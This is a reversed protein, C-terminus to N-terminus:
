EKAEELAAVDEFTTRAKKPEGEKGEDAGEVNFMKAKSRGFSFAGGGGGGSAQRMMFIIFGIILVTPVIATILDMWLGGMQQSSYSVDVNTLDVGQDSLVMLVDSNQNLNAYQMTSDKLKVDIQSEGIEISEVKNEEIDKVVQSLSVEQTGTDFPTVIAYLFVLSIIALIILGLNNKFWNKNM